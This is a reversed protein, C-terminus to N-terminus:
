ACEPADQAPSDAHEEEAARERFADLHAPQAPVPAVGVADHDVVDTHATLVPRFPHRDDLEQVV